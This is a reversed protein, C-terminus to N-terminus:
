RRGIQAAKGLPQFVRKEVDAVLGLAPGCRQRRLILLDLGHRVRARRFPVPRVGGPEPLLEHEALVTRAVPGKVRVEGEQEIGIVDAGAWAMGAIVAAIDGTRAGILDAGISFMDVSGDHCEEAVGALVLKALDRRQDLDAEVGALSSQSVSFSPM